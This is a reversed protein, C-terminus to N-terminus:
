SGFRFMGMRTSRFGPASGSSPAASRCRGSSRRRRPGRPAACAGPCARRRRLRPGHDGARADPRRAAARALRPRPPRAHPAGDRARAHAHHVPLRPRRLHRSSPRRRRCTRCSWRRRARATALRGLVQHPQDPRAPAPGVAPQRQRDARARLDRHLARLADDPAARPDHLHRGARGALDRRRRASSAAARPGPHRGQQLLGAAPLAPSAVATAGAVGHAGYGIFRTSRCTASTRAHLVDLRDRVAGPQRRRRAPRQLLAALAGYIADSPTQFNM